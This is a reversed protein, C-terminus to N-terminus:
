VTGLPDPVRPVISEETMYQAEHESVHDLTLIVNLM